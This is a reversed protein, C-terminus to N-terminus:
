LRGCSVDVGTSDNVTASLSEVAALTVTVACDDSVFRIGAAPSTSPPLPALRVNCIVGAASANPMVTIV